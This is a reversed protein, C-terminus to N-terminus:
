LFIPGNTFWSRCELCNICADREYLCAYIFRNQSEMWHEWAHDLSLEQQQRHLSVKVVPHMVSARMRMM